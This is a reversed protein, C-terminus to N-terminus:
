RRQAKIRDYAHRYVYDRDKETLLRLEDAIKMGADDDKGCAYGACWDVDSDRTNGDDLVIHLSGGSPHGDYYDWVLEMLSKKVAM